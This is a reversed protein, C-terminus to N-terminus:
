VIGGLREQFAGADEPLAASQQDDIERWVIKIKEALVMGVAPEPYSGIVHRCPKPPHPELKHM